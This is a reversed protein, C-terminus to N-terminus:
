LQSVHTRIGLSVDKEKLPLGDSERIVIGCFNYPFFNYHFFIIRAMGDTPSRLFVLSNHPFFSLLLRLSTDAGM